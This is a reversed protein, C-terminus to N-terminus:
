IPGAGAPGQTHRRGDGGPWAPTEWSAAGSPNGPGGQLHQWEPGARELERGLGEPEPGAFVALAGGAASGTEGQRAEGDTERISAPTPHTHLRKLHPWGGWGRQCGRTGEKCGLTFKGGHTRSLPGVPLSGLRPLHNAAHPGPPPPHDVQEGPPQRPRSPSPHDQRPAQGLQQRHQERLQPGCLSKAGPLCGLKHGLSNLPTVM